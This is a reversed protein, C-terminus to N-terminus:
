APRFAYGIIERGDEDRWLTKVVMGMEMGIRFPKDAVM